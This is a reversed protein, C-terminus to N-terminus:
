QWTKLLGWFIKSFFAKTHGSIVALEQFNDQSEGGVDTKHFHEQNFKNYCVKWQCFAPKINGPADM